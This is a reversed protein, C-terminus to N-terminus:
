EDIRRGQAKLRDSVRDYAADYAAIQAPTLDYGNVSRLGIQVLDLVDRIRLSVFLETPAAAEGDNPELLATM